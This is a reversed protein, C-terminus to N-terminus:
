PELHELTLMEGPRLRSALRRGIVQDLREAPIGTGPKRAALHERRLVTGAPLDEAAFLSRTFMRRLPELEVAMSDKDVPHALMEEIWRVGAVLESLEEMTVSAPGDPGFMHRSFTVHVELLSAGLAAAALSPFISGSHDSLGVPCGFRRRMEAPVNLGVRVPPCPYDSTCQLLAFDLRRERIWEVLEQIEGWGSMGTSVLFPLGTEALKELLPRHSVEGSAIKWAPVGVETLLEAAEVSFASSLFILGRRRAHEALERWQAPSFEMRKWYDYRTEDQRSFRVRFPEEPSSEAAAIHTQFKIADAGAGAVADVFSHAMGLSGDHAQAVEAVILAPRGSGVERDGIRFVAGPSDM